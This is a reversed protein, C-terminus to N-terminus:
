AGIKESYCTAASLSIPCTATDLLLGIAQSSLQDGPDHYKKQFDLLTEAHAVPLGPASNLELLTETYM